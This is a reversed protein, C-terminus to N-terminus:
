TQCKCQYATKGQSFGTGIIHDPLNVGVQTDLATAASCVAHQCRGRNFTHMGIIDAALTFQATSIMLWVCNSGISGGFVLQTRGPRYLPGIYFIRVIFISNFFFETDATCFTYLAATCEAITGQEQLDTM